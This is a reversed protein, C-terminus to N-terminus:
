RRVRPSASCPTANYASPMWWPRWITRSHRSRSRRCTDTQCGMAAAMTASANIVIPSFTTSRTESNCAGITNSTTSGRPPRVLPLGRGTSAMALKVGDKTRCFEIKQDLHTPVQSPPGWIPEISFLYGRRPVTQIIRHAEDSLAHRVDRVCQVLADDTVFLGPWAARILEQKSIVRGSNEVFYRLVDFAKPRFGIPEDGRRLSCRQLDLTYDDFCVVGPPVALM